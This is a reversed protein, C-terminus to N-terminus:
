CSWPKFQKIKELITPNQMWAIAQEMTVFYTDTKNKLTERIFKKVGLGFCILFLLCQSFDSFRLQRNFSISLRSYLITHRIVGLGPFYYQNLSFTYHIHFPM